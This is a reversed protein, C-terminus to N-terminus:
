NAPRDGGLSRAVDRVIQQVAQRTVWLLRAAGSRSGETRALAERVMVRRVEQQLERMPVHGVWAAIVPELPPMERFAADLSSVLQQSSFPKPLYRRVGRQALRFAEDASAKGSMAVIIPAPSLRAAEDLVAFASDDPLRVDIIVLDPPPSAGLLAKAEAVSGAEGVDSCQRRVIRAVAARLDAEDEIVVARTYRRLM